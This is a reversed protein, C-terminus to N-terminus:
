TANGGSDHYPPGFQRAYVGLNHRADEDGREAAERLLRAATAHDQTVGIGRQYYDVIMCLAEGDGREAAALYWKAAEQENKPLCSFGCQAHADGVAAQAPACGLNAAQQYLAIAREEDQQIGYGRHYSDALWYLLEPDMPDLEHGTEFCRFAEKLLEDRKRAAQEKLQEEDRAVEGLMAPFFFHAVHAMEQDESTMRLNKAAIDPLTGAQIQKVYEAAVLLQARSGPPRVAYPNIPGQLRFPDEPAAQRLELGRRLCEVAEEKKGLLDRGRAALAKAGAKSLAASQAPALATLKGETSM